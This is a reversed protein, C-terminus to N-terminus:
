WIAVELYSVLPSGNFEHLKVAFGTCKRGNVRPQRALRGKGSAGAKPTESYRFRGVRLGHSEDASAVNVPFLITIGLVVIVFCVVVFFWARALEAPSTRPLPKVAIPEM